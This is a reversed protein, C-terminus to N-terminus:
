FIIPKIQFQAIKDTRRWFANQSSSLISKLYADTATTLSLLLKLWSIYEYEHIYTNM